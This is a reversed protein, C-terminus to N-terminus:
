DIRHIKLWVNTNVSAQFIETWKERKFARAYISTSDSSWYYQMVHADLQPNSLESEVFTATVNWIVVDGSTLEILLRTEDPSWQLSEVSDVFQITHYEGSYMDLINIRTWPRENIYAIQNSLPSVDVNGSWYGSAQPLEIPLSRNEILDYLLYQRQENSWFLISNNDFLWDVTEAYIDLSIHTNLRVDYISQFGDFNAEWLAEIDNFETILVYHSDPSWLGWGWIMDSSGIEQQECTSLDTLMIRSRTQFSTEGTESATSIMM